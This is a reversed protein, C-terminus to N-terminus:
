QDINQHEEMDMLFKLIGGCIILGDTNITIDLGMTLHIMDSKFKHCVHFIYTNYNIIVNITNDDKVLYDDIVINRLKIFNQFGGISKERQNKNFEILNELEFEFDSM